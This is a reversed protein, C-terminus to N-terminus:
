NKPEESKKLRRRVFRFLLYVILSGIVAGAVYKTQVLWQKVQDIEAGFHFALWVLLPVSVLAASGDALIFTRFRMHAAGALLFTPARLGAAFRAFFATWAGYRAFFRYVTEM